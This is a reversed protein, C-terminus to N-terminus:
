KAYEVVRKERIVTVKISGPYELESEVKKAVERALQSTKVDDVEDSNVIVRIERGAQITYAKEVGPFSAAINELRELRKIYGELSERRAGPRAASIADAAQVIIAEVSEPEVDEHHAMVANILIPSEGAQRLIDAAIEVHSGEVTSDVAKGIDHLLAAKKVLHLNKLRLESAMVQAIHAVEISHRLVNQGYSTRFKLRGLLEMERPTLDHIGLSLVAEKAAEQMQNEVEAKAKSVVEEIRGPHIRGDTILRALAVRAVERRVPDYGSLTVAEPTDDVILEVGTAEEFARINRGERGIVRGKMEESPLPVVCVTSETVYETACRMVAQALIEKARKEGEELASDEIAKVIKAAEHKAEQEVESIFMRKIEDKSIGALAELREVERKKIEVLEEQRRRIIEEARRLGEEQKRIGDQRRDIEQERKKLREEQKKLNEQWRKNEKQMREREIALVEKAELIKKEKLNEAEKQASAILEKAKLEADRKLAKDVKRKGFYGLMIGVILGSIGTGVLFLGGVEM